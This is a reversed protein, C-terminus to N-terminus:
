VEGSLIFSKYVEVVSEIVSSDMVQKQFQMFRCLLAILDGGKEDNSVHRALNLLGEGFKARSQPSTDPYSSCCVAFLGSEYAFSLFVENPDEALCKLM